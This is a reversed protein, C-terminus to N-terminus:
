ATKRLTKLKLWTRVFKLYAKEKRYFYLLKDLQSSQAQANTSHYNKDIIKKILVLAKRKNLLQKEEKIGSWIGGQHQRYTALKEDLYLYIGKQILMSHLIWDAFPSKYYQPPFDTFASKRFVLTCTPVPNYDLSLFEKTNLSGIEKDVYPYPSIAGDYKFVNANSFCAVADPNKELVDIQKQLKKQDQCYDDGECLAIYKGKCATIGREWNRHMGLNPEKKLVRVTANGVYESVLKNIVEFTKDTSDDDSIVIEYSFTGNQWFTAELTHKIFDERNYSIICASVLPNSM